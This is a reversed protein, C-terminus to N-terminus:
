KLAQLWDGFDIMLKFLDEFETLPLTEPRDYIDHYAKIGGLTYIFFCKVGNQYFFYHDSNAAKGRLSVDKLYSTQSNLVQLTKFETKFETANVVKIGDEGTGVMDMNILFKIQKLPFLPHETYYKSGLLGAEEGAFAIFAVSYKPPHESYYKALNILMACGSANDNAGPFYVEKGSQDHGMVGLHDYHATYVIFSDPYQFGEIYGIINQTKHNAVLKPEVRMWGGMRKQPIHFSDALIQFKLNESQQQSVDSTLKDVLEAIGIGDFCNARILDFYKLKERDKVKRADVIVITEYKKAKLSKIFKKFKKDSSADTSDFVSSFFATSAGPCDPGLLFNKGVRGTFGIPKLGEPSDLNKRRTASLFLEITGPFTNVPFGFKQYYDRKMMLENVKGFNKLGFEQFRDAIYKAAISDGGNVYGRGHMGPAALTDIIIRAYKYVPGHETEQATLSYATPLQCCAVALAFFFSRLPKTEMLIMRPIPLLIPILIM